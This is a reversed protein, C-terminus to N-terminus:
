EYITLRYVGRGGFVATVFLEYTGSEPLTVAVLSNTGDGADDDLALNSGDPNSIYLFADFENSELVAIIDQNARGEYEFRDYVTGDYARADGRELVGEYRAAETGGLERVSVEYVGTGEATTSGAHILLDGTDDLVYAVRSTDASGARETDFYERGFADVAELSPTFDESRMEILIRRGPEGSLRYRDSSEGAAEGLEGVVTEGVSIEPAPPVRRVVIRFPGTESFLATPYLQLTGTTEISRLFGANLGEYDDNSIRRGNPLVAEIYTDVAESTVLVEVDTGAEVRVEYEYRDVASEDDTTFRDRTSFIVEQADAAATAGGLILATLVLLRLYRSMGYVAAENM